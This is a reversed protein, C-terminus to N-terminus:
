KFTPLNLIDAGITQLLILSFAILILGSFISTVNEKAAQLKEPNGQSTIVTYGTAILMLLIIGGSAFFAYKLAFKLFETLSDTPVCGIATDIGQGSTGCDKTNTEWATAAYQECKWTKANFRWKQGSGDEYPRCSDKPIPIIDSCTAVGLFGSGFWAGNKLACTAFPGAKCCYKKAYDSDANKLKDCGSPAGPKDLSDLSGEPCYPDSTKAEQTCQQSNTDCTNIGCQFKSNDLDLTSSCSTYPKCCGKLALVDIYRGESCCATAALTERPWLFAALFIVFLLSFIKKMMEAYCM